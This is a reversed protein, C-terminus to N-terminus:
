PSKPNGLCVLAQVRMSIPVKPNFALQGLAPLLKIRLATFTFKHGLAVPVLSLCAQQILHGDGSGLARVLMPVVCGEQAPASFSTMLLDLSKLLLYTVPQPAGSEMLRALAPQISSGFVPKSADAAIAQVSPLAFSAIQPDQLQQLLAPLIKNETSQANFISLSNPLKKLFEVRSKVDKQLLEELYRLIRVQSLTNFRTFLVLLM